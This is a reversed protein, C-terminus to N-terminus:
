PTAEPSNQIAGIVMDLTYGSLVPKGNLFIRGNFEDIQYGNIRMSFDASHNKQFDQSQMRRKTQDETTEPLDLPEKNIM